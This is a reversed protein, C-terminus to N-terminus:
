PRLHVKGAGIKVADVGHKVNSWIYYERNLAAIDTHDKDFQDRM